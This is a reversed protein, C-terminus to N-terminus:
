IFFSLLKEAFFYLIFAILFAPVFPLGEKIKIKKKKSLLKVDEKTLGEWSYEIVKNKIKEDKALWDGERLEKGSIIRTMSVKELGRAFVYLFPFLIILFSFLTFVSLSSFIFLCFGIIVFLIILSRSKKFNKRIEKNVSQFNQSYLVLSYIIGYISGSIMLLLVFIGINIISETFNGGIFFASMAFLLCADGGGFIRSYYFLNMILFMIALIFGTLIIISYNNEFIAKYFIYSLSALLLFLNLWYDVERRKLDQFLAIIIGALFLWFLFAGGM